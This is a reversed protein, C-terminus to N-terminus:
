TVGILGIKMEYEKKKRKIRWEPSLVGLDNKSNVVLWQSSRTKMDLGSLLAAGSDFRRSDCRCNPLTHKKSM